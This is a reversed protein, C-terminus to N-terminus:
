PLPKRIVAEIPVRTVKKEVSRTRLESLLAVALSLDFDVVDRDAPAFLLEKM